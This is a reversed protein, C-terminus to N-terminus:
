EHIQGMTRAFSSEVGRFRCHIFDGREPRLMGHLRFCVAFPSIFSSGITGLRM